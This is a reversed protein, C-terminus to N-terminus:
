VNVYILLLGGVLFILNVLSATLSLFYGLLRYNLYVYLALFINVSATLLGLFPLLFVSYWPGLASFGFYINFHLIIYETSPRFNLALALWLIVNLALALFFNIVIIKDRKGPSNKLFERLEFFLM